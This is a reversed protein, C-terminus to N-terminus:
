HLEVGTSHVMADTSLRCDLQIDDVVYKFDAISEERRKTLIYQFTQDRLFSQFSPWVPATLDQPREPQENKGKEVVQDM